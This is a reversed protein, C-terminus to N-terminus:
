FNSCLAFLFKFYLHLWLTTNCTTCKNDNPASSQQRSQNHHKVFFPQMMISSINWSTCLLACVYVSQLFNQDGIKEHILDNEKKLYKGHCSM